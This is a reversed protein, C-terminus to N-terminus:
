NGLRMLITQVDAKLQQATQELRGHNAEMATLLTELNKASTTEAAPLARIGGVLLGAVFAALVWGWRLRQIFREHM